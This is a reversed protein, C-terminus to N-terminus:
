LVVLSDLLQSVDELCVHSRACSDSMGEYVLYDSHQHTTVNSLM